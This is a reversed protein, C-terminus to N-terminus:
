CGDTINLRERDRVINDIEAMKEIAFIYKIRLSVMKLGRRKERNSYSYQLDIHTHTHTHTNFTHQKNTDQTSEM